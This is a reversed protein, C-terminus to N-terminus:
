KEVPGTVLGPAIGVNPGPPGPPVNVGVNVRVACRLLDDDNTLTGCDTAYFIKVPLHNTKNAIRSRLPSIFRSKAAIVGPPVCRTIILFWNKEM